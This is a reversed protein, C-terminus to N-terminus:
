RAHKSLWAKTAATQRNARKGAAEFDKAARRALDTARPRARGVQWLARALAFRTRGLERPDSPAGERISLARELTEVAEPAHGEGLYCEGMVTLPWAMYLHDGGLGKSYIAVSQALDDLAEAYNREHLGLDGLHYLAEAVDSHDPGLARRSIGLAQEYYKRAEEHNGQELQSTGLNMLPFSLRPDDAGFARTWIEVARLLNVRAREYDGQAVALEGLANLEYGVNAHDPGFAAVDIAMAREYYERALAYRAQDHFTSGVHYLSRAIAPHRAGLIRKRIELAREHLARGEDLKAQWVVVLGLEDLANAVELSDEGKEASYIAVARELLERARAAHGQERLTTGLFMATRARLVPDNGARAVAADVAPRLALAEAHHNQQAGRVHILAVLAEAMRRDDKARAAARAAEALTTEAADSSQMEMQVNGLLLLAEALLPAYELPRAHQVVSAAIREADAFKGASELSSSRDLQEELAAIQAREEAEEPPPVAANLREVDACQALPPLARAAQVAEGVLDPDTEGSFLATLAALKAAHRDLCAMRLDMLRDSQEGRIRTAECAETRMSIWGRAYEDLIGDVRAFVDEAYNRGIAKFSREAAAAVGEDWVGRLHEAAGSCVTHSTGQGRVMLVAALAVGALGVGGAVRLRRRRSVVPDRELEAILEAMTPFRDKPNPRLGRLLANRIWAPVMSHKPPEQISGENVSDALARYSTAAYPREGYLAEYLAVCFSFQDAAATVHERRHQEPAMYLPTGLLAGTQTLSVSLPLSELREVSDAASDSSDEVDRATTAVLGFDTVRVRGDRGVLVNDPKFDRHILGAAHAAALGHGAQLFVDVIERWPRKEEALWGTLTQGDVFEMAVFVEDGITGVEHVVVVNPHSLKAMAQAERLLRVQGDGGSGSRRGALSLVKIAVRRDLQSDYASLVVGMGGGGIRDLVVFRGVRAGRGLEFASVVRRGSQATQALSAEESDRASPSATNSAVTEASDLAVTDAQVLGPDSPKRTPQDPDM